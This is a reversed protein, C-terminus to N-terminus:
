LLNMKFFQTLKLKLYYKFLFINLFILILISIIGIKESLTKQFSLIFNIWSFTFFGIPIGSFFRILPNIRNRALNSVILYGFILSILIEFIWIM